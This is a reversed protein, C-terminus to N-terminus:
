YAEEEKSIDVSDESTNDSHHICGFKPGTSLTAMYGDYDRYELADEPILNQPYLGADSYIFKASACEGLRCTRKISIHEYEVWYKCTECREM